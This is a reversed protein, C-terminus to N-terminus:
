QALPLFWREALPRGIQGRHVNVIAHGSKANALQSWYSLTRQAKTKLHAVTYAQKPTDAEAYHFHAYWLAYGQRDNIAYEQIFDRREGTLQIRRGLSAIQVLEQDILYQLNGHTPPLELSLQIRMAKGESVMQQAANRMRDVLTQDDQLRADDPQAQLAVHMETALKDLKQAEHTLLEEVEQPHRSLTRYHGAKRLHGEFQNFLKRADGKIVNLPRTHPAPAPRETKIEVWEDGHQLYTSLLHKDYDSRVEIVEKHWESDAPRLEGILKGKGRVSIMKKPRAGATSPTRKRPKKAPPQAPPRIEAALQRTADQYLDTVLACLQNFYELNLEDSYVIGIGQLADLAQGYCEVLSGLIEMRKSADFELVNLENHTHVHEKLPDITIDLSGEIMSGASYRSSSLKLCDLQFSKLSLSTHADAPIELALNGAVTAGAESLNFLEELYHNRQEIREITAQNLAVQEHMFRAFGARDAEAAAEQGPGPTTFQSWKQILARQEGAAIAMSISRNDFSKELLSVVISEHFPIKLEIREQNSALLTQYASLEAHLATRLKERLSALQQETFRPDANASKLAMHTIEVAKQLPIERPFFDKLDNGLQTIRLARHQQFAAIRKPPMGGQLRLRLDISWNGDRDSQLSPGPHRPDTISVIVATGEPDVDVAYLNQDILAHWTRDIYYLGKRPGDPHATPLADPRTVKFDALRERQSPTLQNRANAFSLDLVTSEANPFQGPLAVSGSTIRPPAPEPWIQPVRLTTFPRMARTRLGTPLTTLVNPSSPAQHLLLLGINLLIDAAAQERVTPDNSALAPITQSALSMLGLLGGTLMLPAPVAPLMLLSNFILGGGELLVAWRSESNTVSEANAQEVLARANCGYLFQMLQGNHLYQLLENSIGKVALAAPKPVEIPDYESGLGFRVYHPEKLGGHDYIPRATDSLWTIVSDQLDGPGAIADLLADRTSFELLSPAYLPRYLVHPGHEVDAPEIIFMNNVIDPVAEFQRVLALHRIVVSNGEVLRDAARPQVLAAVYRAGLTTMTSEPKLSLELAELPLQVRLHEAFLKERAQADPTNSLLLSELREPYAKGINVQEILGDRRTIYDPTLWQPLDLGLHHRVSLTGKPRGILNKLALDTLSMSVPEVVGLTGYAGAVTLFTLEIEDPNLLESLAHVPTDQEFQLQDARMQQHLVDAAYARLTSIDFLYNRGQSTKKAAALALSYQRYRAQDAASASKLWDPMHQKLTELTHLNAQPAAVFYRSPDTIHRYVEDLAQWGISSPLELLGISELQRNLLAASAADFVNGDLEYQELRVEEVSYSRSIKRAWDRGLSDLNRYTQTKGNANCALIHEPTVLVVRSSLASRTIGASLVTAKLWYVHIANEAHQRIREELEPANIVQYIAERATQPLDSQQLAGIRLTDKLVDGLWQWRSVGTDAPESWFDSIANQLGIPLRWSLEKVLREIVRMDLEGGDTKLWNPADDTLYYHQTNIPSLDLDAGTGLYDLVKPMFPQLDWGGQPRPVALRTRTLDIKLSPYEQAIAAALMHRTVSELSPPNAFQERVANQAPAPTPTTM